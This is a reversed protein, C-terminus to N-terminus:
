REGECLYNIFISKKKGERKQSPLRALPFPKREIPLFVSAVQFMPSQEDITKVNILTKCLQNIRRANKDRTHVNGVNGKKKQSADM